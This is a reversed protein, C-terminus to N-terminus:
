FVTRGLVLPNIIDLLDFCWCNCSQIWNRENCWVLNEKGKLIAEYIVGTYYDLGRALSLDFSVRDQIGYLECYRLLTRIEELGEMATKNQSLKEDKQLADILETGGSFAIVNLWSSHLGINFHWRDNYIQTEGYWLWNKEFYM